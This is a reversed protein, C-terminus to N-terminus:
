LTREFTDRRATEVYGERRYLEFARANTAAVMLHIETAGEGTLLEEARRLLWRGLGRGRARPLLGIAEIEGAFGPAYQCRLFGVPGGVDFLVRVLTERFTSGRKIKHWDDLRLPFAGPVGAFAENGVELYLEDGVELLRQERHGEPLAGPARPGGERRMFVYSEILRYGRQELAPALLPASAISVVLRQAGRKLGDSEGWEVLALGAGVPDKGAAHLRVLSRKGDKLERDICLATARVRGRERAAMGYLGEPLLALDAALDEPACDALAAVETLDPLASYPVVEFENSM